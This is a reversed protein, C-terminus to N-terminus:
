KQAPQASQPRGSQGSRSARVPPVFRYDRWDIGHRRLLDYLSRPNLGARLAAEGVHGGSRGLLHTLYTREFQELAARRAQAYGTVEGAGPTPTRPLGAEPQPAPAAARRIEDPLDAATIEPGPALLVAREVVNVLERLNGPWAYGLLAELADVSLARAERRFSAAHRELWSQALAPLDELRERLPPVRLTVVALRYYLDERLLGRAMLDAPDRHTAAMLRVDVDLMREGGVRQIRRDQLVRLLKVQLHPPMEGIEDLFITGGQAMEFHGRHARLAGTFAGREHGFLESELLNDALAGCNVAVFPGQGRPGEEHLARALWEKGVGTEGLVLVTSASPVVRRAMALLRQMAVSASAFDALRHRQVWPEAHQRRLLEERRRELLAGLAERLPDEDLSSGLVALCRAALLRARAAAGERGTLAIVEPAGPLARVGRVTRAPDAGLRGAEALVVDADDNELARPRIPGDVCRLVSAGLAALLREYRPGDEVFLVVRIQM